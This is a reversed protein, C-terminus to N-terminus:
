MNYEKKVDYSASSEKAFYIKKLREYLRTDCSQNCGRLNHRVHYYDFLFSLNEGSKGLIEFTDRCTKDHREVYKKTVLKYTRKYTRRYMRKYM